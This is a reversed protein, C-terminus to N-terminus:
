MLCMLLFTMSGFISMVMVLVLWAIAPKPGLHILGIGVVLETATTLVTIWWANDHHQGLLSGIMMGPYFGPFACTMWIVDPLLRDLEDYGILWLYPMIMCALLSILALRLGPYRYLNWGYLVFALGCLVASAPFPFATVFFMGVSVPVIAILMSKLSFVIPLRGSESEERHDSIPLFPLLIWIAVATVAFGIMFRPVLPSPRSQDGETWEEFAPISWGIVASLVALAIYVVGAIRFTPWRMM